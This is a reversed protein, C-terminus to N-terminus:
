DAVLATDANSELLAAQPRVLLARNCQARLAHSREQACKRQLWGGARHALRGRASWCLYSQHAPWSSCPLQAYLARTDAAGAQAVSRCKKKSATAFSFSGLLRFLGSHAAFKLAPKGQTKAETPPRARSRHEHNHRREWCGARRSTQEDAKRGACKCLSGELSLKWLKRLTLRARATM